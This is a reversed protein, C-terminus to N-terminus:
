VKTRKGLAFFFRKKENNFCYYITTIVNYEASIQKFKHIAPAGLFLIHQIFASQDKIDQELSQLIPEYFIADQELTKKIAKYTTNIVAFAECRTKSNVIDKELKAKTSNLEIMSEDITKLRM